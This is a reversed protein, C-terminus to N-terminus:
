QTFIHFNQERKLWGRSKNIMFTCYIFIIQIKKTISKLPNEIYNRM